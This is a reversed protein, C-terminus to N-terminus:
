PFGDDDKVRNHSTVGSKGSLPMQEEIEKKTQDINRAMLDLAISRAEM